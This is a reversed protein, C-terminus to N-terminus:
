RMRHPFDRPMDRLLPCLARRIGGTLATLRGPLRGFPLIALAALRAMIMLTANPSLTMLVQALGFVLVALRFVQLAGFRQGASAVAATGEWALGNGPNRCIVVPPVGAM